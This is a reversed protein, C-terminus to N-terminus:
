QRLLMPDSTQSQPTSYKIADLCLEYAKELTEKSESFQNLYIQCQGVLFLINMKDRMDGGQGNEIMELTPIGIKLAEEFDGKVKLIDCLRNAAYIYYNEEDPLSKKQLAKRYYREAVRPKGLYTHCVGRIYNARQSSVDGVQELSDALLLVREFDQQALSSNLMASAMEVKSKGEQSGIGMPGNQQTCSAMLWMCSTALLTILTNTISQNM